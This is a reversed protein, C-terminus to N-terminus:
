AIKSADRGAQISASSLPWRMEFITPDKIQILRVDGGRRNALGKAMGLGLGRGQGVERSTQFPEFIRAAREREIGIGDDQVRVVFERDTREAQILVESKAFDVANTLLALACAMVERTEAMVRDDAPFRAEDFKLQVGKAQARSRLLLLAQDIGGQVSGERQLSENPIRSSTQSAVYSFDRLAQVVDRIRQAGARMRDFGELVKELPRNQRLMLEIHDISGLIIALPNNVEHAVGSALDSVAAQRSAQALQDRSEALERLAAQLTLAQERLAQDRRRLEFLAAAHRALTELGQRQEETLQRHTQDIVCVTGLTVGDQLTIPAGFYYRLQLGDTVIPNDHFRPDRTADCVELSQGSGVVHGCFSIDRPTESIEIGVKAKFWQRDKEVLSILAIPTGAIASAMEVIQNFAPEPETDLIRLDLLSQLRLSENSPQAPKLM